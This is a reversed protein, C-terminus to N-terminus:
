GESAVHSIRLGREGRTLNEARARWLVDGGRRRDRMPKVHFDVSCLACPLRACLAGASNGASRKRIVKAHRTESQVAMRWLVAPPYPKTTYCPSHPGRLQHPSQSVNGPPTKADDRQKTCLGQCLSCFSRCLPRRQVGHARSAFNHVVALVPPRNKAEIQESYLATDHTKPLHRRLLHHCHHSANPHM